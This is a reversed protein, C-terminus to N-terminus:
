SYPKYPEMFKVYEPEVLKVKGDVLEVLAFTKTYTHDGDYQPEISWRHFFGTKNGIYPHGNVQISRLSKEKSKM